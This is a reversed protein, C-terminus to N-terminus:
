MYWWQCGQSAPELCYGLVQGHQLREAGEIDSKIVVRPIHVAVSTPLKRKAFGDTIFTAFRVVDM